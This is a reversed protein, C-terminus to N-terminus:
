FERTYTHRSFILKIYWVFMLLNAASIALYMYRHVQHMVDAANPLVRASDGESIKADAMDAIPGVVVVIVVSVFIVALVVFTATVLSVDEGDAM